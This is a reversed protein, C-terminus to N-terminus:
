THTYTHPPNCPKCAALHIFLTHQPACKTSKEPHHVAAASHPRATCSNGGCSGTLLKHACCWPLCAGLTATHLAACPPVRRHKYIHIPQKHHLCRTHHLRRTNCSSQSRALTVKNQPAIQLAHHSGSHHSTAVPKEQEASMSCRSIAEAQCAQRPAITMGGQLLWKAQLQEWAADTRAWFLLWLWVAVLVWAWGVSALLNLGRAQQM